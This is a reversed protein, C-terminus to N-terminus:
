IHCDVLVFWDDDNASKIFRDVFSKGWEKRDKADDSSFGFWGMKGKSHWSGDTTIVAYTNIEFYWRYDREIDEKTFDKTIYEVPPIKKLLEKIQEISVEDGMEMIKQEEERRRIMTEEVVDRLGMQNLHFQMASFAPYEEDEGTKKYELWSNWLAIVWTTKKIPHLCGVLLTKLM